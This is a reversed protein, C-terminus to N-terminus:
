AVLSRKLYSGTGIANEVLQGNTFVARGRVITHVVRGKLDWGDYISYGADTRATENTIHQSANLDVIAFDADFGVVIGGKRGWLGM